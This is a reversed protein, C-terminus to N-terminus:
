VGVAAQVVASADAHSSCFDSTQLERSAVDIGMGISLGVAREILQMQQLVEVTFQTREWRGVVKVLREVCAVAVLGIVCIVDVPETEAVVVVAGASVGPIQYPLEPAIDFDAELAVLQVILASPEICEEVAMRGKDLSVAVPPEVGTVLLLHKLNIKIGADGGGAHGIQEINAIVAVRQADHKTIGMQLIWLAVVESRGVAADKRALTHPVDEAGDVECGLGNGHGREVVFLRADSGDGRLVDVAVPIGVKPSAIVGREVM